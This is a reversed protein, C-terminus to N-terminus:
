RLCKVSALFVASITSLLCCHLVVNQLQFVNLLVVFGLYRLCLLVPKCSLIFYCFRNIRNNFITLMSSSVHLCVLFFIFVNVSSFMLQFKSGIVPRRCAVEDIM